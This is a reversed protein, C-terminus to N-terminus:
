DHTVILIGSRQGLVRQGAFAPLVEQMRLTRFIEQEAAAAWLFVLVVPASARPPLVYNDEARLLENATNRDAACRPRADLM